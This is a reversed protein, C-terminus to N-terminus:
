CSLQSGKKLEKFSRRSQLNKFVSDFGNKKCVKVVRRFLMHEFSFTFNGCYIFNNAYNTFLYYTIIEHYNLYDIWEQENLGIIDEKNSM